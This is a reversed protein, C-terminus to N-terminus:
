DPASFTRKAAALALPGFPLSRRVAPWAKQLWQGAPSDPFASEKAQVAMGPLVADTVLKGGLGRLAAGAEGRALSQGIAGLGQGLAGPMMEGITEAYRGATSAPQYFKGTFREEIFKKINEPSVAGNINPPPLSPKPLGSVANFVADFGKNVTRHALDSAQPIGGALGIAGNVVGIGASKAIDVLDPSPAEARALNRVGRALRAAAAERAQQAQDAEAQQDALRGLLGGAREGGYIEPDYEFAGRFNVGGM